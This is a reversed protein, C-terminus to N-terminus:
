RPALGMDDLRLLIETKRTRQVDRWHIGESAALLGYLFNLSVAPNNRKLDRYLDYPDRARLAEITTVGVKALAATTKPGFGPLVPDAM